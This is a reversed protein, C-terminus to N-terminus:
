RSSDDPAKLRDELTQAFLTTSFLSLLRLTVLTTMIKM